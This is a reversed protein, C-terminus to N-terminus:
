KKKEAQFALLRTHAPIDKNNILVPISPLELSSWSSSSKPIITSARTRKKKTPLTIGVTMEMQTQEFMLNADSAKPTRGVLFFLLGKHDQDDITSKRAIVTSTRGDLALSIHKPHAGPGHKPLGVVAHQSTMLHTDKLQSSLPGLILDEAEFARATWLESCWVDKENKRLVVSLDKDTYVPLTECLQELGVNVRSELFKIKLLDGDHSLLDRSWGSEIKVNEPLSDGLAWEHPAKKGKKGSAPGEATKTETSAVTKPNQFVWDSARTLNSPNCPRTVQLNKGKVNVAINLLVQRRNEDTFGEIIGETGVDINKRYEECKPQPITWTM